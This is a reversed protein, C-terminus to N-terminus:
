CQLRTQHEIFNTIVFRFYVLGSPNPTGTYGSETVSIGAVEAVTLSVVNSELVKTSNDLTDVFSGTAQNEILTGAPPSAAVASLQLLSSSSLLLATM